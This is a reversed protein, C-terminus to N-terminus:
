TAEDHDFRDYLFKLGDNRRKYDEPDKQARDRM